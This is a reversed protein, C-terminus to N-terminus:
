CRVPTAVPPPLTIRLVTADINGSMVQASILATGGSGRALWWDTGDLCSEPAGPSFSAPPPLDRMMATHDADHRGTIIRHASLVLPSAFTRRDDDLARSSFSLMVRGRLRALLRAFDEIDHRVRRGSVVLDDSISSRERDLMLPDKPSKAVFGRPQLFEIFTITDNDVYAFYIVPYVKGAVLWHTAERDFYERISGVFM